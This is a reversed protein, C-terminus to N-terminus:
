CSEILRASRNRGPQGLAGAGPYHAFVLGAGPGIPGRPFCRAAAAWRHPFEPCFRGGVEDVSEALHV